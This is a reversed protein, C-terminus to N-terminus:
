KSLQIKTSYICTHTKTHPHTDTPWTKVAFHYKVSKALTLYDYYVTLLATTVTPSKSIVKGCPIILM